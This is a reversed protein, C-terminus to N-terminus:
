VISCSNFEKFNLCTSGNTQWCISNGYYECHLSCKWREKPFYDRLWLEKQPLNGIVNRDKEVAVANRDHFNIGPEVVSVFYRQLHPTCM